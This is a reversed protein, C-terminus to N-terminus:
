YVGGLHSRITPSSVISLRLYAALTNIFIMYKLLSAGAVQPLEGFGSFEICSDNSKSRHRQDDVKEKLRM